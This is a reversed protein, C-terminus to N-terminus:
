LGKESQEYDSLVKIGNILPIIKEFKDSCNLCCNEANTEKLYFKTYPRNELPSLLTFVDKLKSEKGCVICGVPIELINDEFM